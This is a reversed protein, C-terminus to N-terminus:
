QKLKIERLQKRRLRYDPLQTEVLSWFAPGHNLEIIHSLEHIMLYEFLADDLLGANLNISLTGSSSYSGWRSKQKRISILKPKPGQYTELFKQVRQLSIKKLLAEEGDELKHTQPDPKSLQKELWAPRSEIFKVIEPLPLGLPARVELETHSIMKMSISRRKSFCVKVDFWEAYEDDFTVKLRLHRERVHQKSKM